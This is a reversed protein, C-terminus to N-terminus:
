SAVFKALLALGLAAVVGLLLVLLSRVRGPKSEFPEAPKPKPILPTMWIM